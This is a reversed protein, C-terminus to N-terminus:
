NVMEVAARQIEEGLALLEEPTMTDAVSHFKLTFMKGDFQYNAFRGTADARYYKRVVLHDPAETAAEVKKPEEEEVAPSPQKVTEKSSVNEGGILDQETCRLKKAMLPILFQIPKTKGLIWNNVTCRSVGIKNALEKETMENQRLLNPLSVKLAEAEDSSIIPNPFYSMLSGFMGSVKCFGNRRAAEQANIGALLDNKAGLTNPRPFDTANIEPDKPVHPVDDGILKSESCGLTRAIKGIMEMSPAEYGAAWTYLSDWSVGLASALTSTSINAEKMASMLRVRFSSYVRSM